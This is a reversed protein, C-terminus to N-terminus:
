PAIRFCAHKVQLEHQHGDEPAAHERRDIDDQLAHPDEGRHEQAEGTGREDQERQEERAVAPQRPERRALRHQDDTQSEEADRKVVREKGRAERHHLRAARREDHRAIRRERREEGCEDQALPEAPRARDSDQQAHESRQPDQAASIREAERAELEARSLEHEEGANEDPAGVRQESADREGSQRRERQSRQDHRRARHRERQGRRELLRRERLSGPLGPRREGIQDDKSRYDREQPEVLADLRQACRARRLEDVEHRRQRERLRHEDEALGQRGGQEDPRPEHDGAEVEDVPGASM